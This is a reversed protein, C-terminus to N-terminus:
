PTLGPPIATATYPEASVTQSSRKAHWLVVLSIVITPFARTYSLYLFRPTELIALFLVPYMLIGALRGALFSRYLTGAVLGFLFWYILFGFVGWDVLPMFLGGENNLEPTGYQKLMEVHREIPDIGTLRDYALFSNQQGPLTWLSRMTWYPFPLPGVTEVAMVSNNHATTYYGSLRWLTFDAVSEFEDQYYPWSRFYEAAGFFIALCVVGIAPALQLFGRVGPGFMRGLVQARLWLVVGPIALELIALRESWLLARLTALAAILAMPWIVRREGQVLLWSGLLMASVGFQACTTVGPITPFLENRIVEEPTGDPDSLMERLMGLSFGSRVGQAGWIAYGLVTL